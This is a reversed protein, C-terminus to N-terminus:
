DFYRVLREMCENWGEIEGDRSEASAFGGIRFTIRTKGDSETFEVSALREHEAKGSEDEWGHTFVLGDPPNIETYVGCARYEEGRPSRICTRFTGGPRPDIEVHPTTFDRPGWWRSLSGPQLWAEFVKDPPAGVIRTITIEHHRSKLRRHVAFAM